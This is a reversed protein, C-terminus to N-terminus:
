AFTVRLFGLVVVKVVEGLVLVIVECLMSSTPM